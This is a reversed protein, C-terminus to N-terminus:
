GDLLTDRLIANLNAICIKESFQEEAASRAATKYQQLADRDESLLRIWDLMGAIDDPSFNRGCRYQSILAVLDNPENSIGLIVNGAALSNMTKSPISYKEYEEALTVISIDIAALAPPLNKYDIWSLLTLHPFTGTKIAQEVLPRKSGEGIIFTHISDDSQLSETFAVISEISHTAGLNGAYAIIMKDNSIQHSQAFSNDTREIPHIWDTDVWNPIVTVALGKHLSMDSLIKAMNDGLTIVALADRLAWQHWKYWIRYALSKESLIAMAAAIQPYIDFEFLIYPQNRLKHFFWVVLPVFPPNTVVLVPTQAPTALLHFFVSITYLLWTRLRSLSSTRNYATMKRIVLDDSRQEPLNGSLVEIPGCEKSFQHIWREIHPSVTQNIFLLKQKM